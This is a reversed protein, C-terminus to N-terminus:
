PLQNKGEDMMEKEFLERGYIIDKEEFHCTKTVLAKARELSITVSV